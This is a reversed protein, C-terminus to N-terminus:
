AEFRELFALAPGWYSASEKHVDGGGDGGYFSSAKCSEKRPYQIHTSIEEAIDRGFSFLYAAHRCQRM